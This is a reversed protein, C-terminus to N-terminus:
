RYFIIWLLQKYWIPQWMMTNKCFGVWGAKLIIGEKQIDYLLPITEGDIIQLKDVPNKIITNQIKKINSEYNRSTHNQRNIQIQELCDLVVVGGSGSTQKIVLAQGDNTIFPKIHPRYITMFEDTLQKYSIFNSPDKSSESKKCLKAIALLLAFKYSTNVKAKTVLLEIYDLCDQFNEKPVQPKNVKCM